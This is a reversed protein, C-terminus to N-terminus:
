FYSHGQIHLFNKFQTVSPLRKQHTNFLFLSCKDVVVLMLIHIPCTVKSALQLTYQPIQLVAATKHKIWMKHGDPSVVIPSLMVFHLISDIQIAYEHLM